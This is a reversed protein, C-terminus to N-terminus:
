GFFRQQSSDAALGRGPGLYDNTDAVIAGHESDWGTVFSEESGIETQFSNVKAPGPMGRFHNPM